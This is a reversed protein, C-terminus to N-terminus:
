VFLGKQGLKSFLLLYITCFRDYIKFNWPAHLDHVSSIKINLCNVSFINIMVRWCKKYKTFMAFTNSLLWNCFTNLFYHHTSFPIIHIIEVIYVCLYICFYFNISLQIQFFVILSLSIALLNVVGMQLQNILVTLFSNTFYILFM